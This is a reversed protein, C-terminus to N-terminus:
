MSTPIFSRETNTPFRKFLDVLSVQTKQSFLVSISFSTICADKPLFPSVYKQVAFVEEWKLNWSKYGSGGLGRVRVAGPIGFPPPGPARLAPAPAAFREPHAARLLVHFAAQRLRQSVEPSASTSGPLSRIRYSLM